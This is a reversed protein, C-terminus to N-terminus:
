GRHHRSLAMQWRGRRRAKSLLASSLAEAWSVNPLRCFHGLGHGKLQQQVVQQVISPAGEAGCTFVAASREVLSLEAPTLFLLVFRLAAENQLSFFHGEVQGDTRPRKSSPGNLKRLREWWISRYRLM